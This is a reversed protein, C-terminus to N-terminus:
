LARILLDDFYLEAEWDNFAFFEHGAGALPSPDEYSLFPTGDIFWSIRAGQRRIRFRYRRGPEVKVDARGVTEPGHEDRKAIESKSNQWGGFVLVYSTATYSVDKAFSEGDGFVELKIDGATSRSEVTVEIEVDRPLKRKLWLPKNRARAVRLRGDVLAYAGNGSQGAALWDPGLEARDFSDRWEGTIAPARNCALTVVFACLCISKTM